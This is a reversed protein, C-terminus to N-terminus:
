LLDDVLDLGPVPVSGGSHGHASESRLECCDLLVEAREGTDRLAEPQGVVTGTYSLAM